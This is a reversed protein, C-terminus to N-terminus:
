YNSFLSLHGLEPAEIAAYLCLSLSASSSSCSCLSTDMGRHPSLPSCHNIFLFPSAWAWPAEIATADSSDCGDSSSFMSLPLIRSSLSPPGPLSLSYSLPGHLSLPLDM